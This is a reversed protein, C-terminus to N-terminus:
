NSAVRRKKKRLKRKFINYERFLFLLIIVGIIIKVVIHNSGVKKELTLDESYLEEGNVLIQFRGVNDGPKVNKDLIKDGDFVIKINADNELFYSYDHKAVFNVDKNNYTKISTIIDGKKILTRYSYDEFFMSYIKHTDRLNNIHNTDIDSGAVVLIYQESGNEALSALCLGADFTFGTKGGLIYSLDYGLKNDAIQLTSKLALGNSAEYNETTFIEYFTKNQLAYKLVKAVDEVTSYNEEDDLGMTNSYHTNKLNLKTALKNMEDVLVEESGFAYTALAKACEAGSPLLLGYLLDRYTVTDGVRFGALSAGLDFVGYIDDDTITFEEDLNEIHEIAVIGTTIKTLSAISIKNQSNEEYYLKDDTLNYYYINDATIGSLAKVPSICLLFLIISFIVKKM